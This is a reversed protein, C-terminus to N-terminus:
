EKWPKVASLTEPKVNISISGIEDTKIAEISSLQEKIGGYLLLLDKKTGYLTFGGVIKRREGNKEIIIEM